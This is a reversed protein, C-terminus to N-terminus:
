RPRNTSSRPSRRSRTGGQRRAAKRTATKSQATTPRSSSSTKRRAPKPGSETLRRLAADYRAIAEDRAYARLYMWGVYVHAEHDFRAPDVQAAEFREITFEDIMSDRM